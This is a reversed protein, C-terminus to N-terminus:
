LEVLFFVASYLIIRQAGFIRLMIKNYDCCNCLNNYLMHLTVNYNIWNNSITGIYQMINTRAKNKHYYELRHTHYM